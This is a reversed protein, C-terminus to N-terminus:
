PIEDASVREKVEPPVDSPAESPIVADPRARAPPTAPFEGTVLKAKTTERVAEAEAAKPATAWKGITIGGTIGFVAALFTLIYALVTLWGDSPEIGRGDHTFQYVLSATAGAGLFLFLGATLYICLVKLTATADISGNEARQWLNVPRM